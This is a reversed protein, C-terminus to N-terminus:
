SQLSRVISLEFLILDQNINIKRLIMQPLENIKIFLPSVPKVGTWTPIRLTVTVERANIGNARKWRRLYLFAFVLYRIRLPTSPLAKGDISNGKAWVLNDLPTAPIRFEKDGNNARSSPM